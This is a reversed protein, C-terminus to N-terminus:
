ALEFFLKMVKVGHDGDVDQNEILLKFIDKDQASISTNFDLSNKTVDKYGMHWSPFLRKEIPSFDRRNLGGHREDAEIQAYLKSLENKDGEIYQLFRKDSHLLIGTINKGPNNRNCADLIKAIEEDSCKPRRSSTYILRYLEAM